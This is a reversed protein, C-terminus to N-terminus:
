ANTSDKHLICYQGDIGVITVSSAKSREGGSAPDIGVFYGDEPPTSPSASVIEQPTKKCIMEHEYAGHQNRMLLEVKKSNTPLSM